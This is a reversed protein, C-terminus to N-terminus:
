SRQGAASGAVAPVHSHTFKDHSRDTNPESPEGIMWYRTMKAIMKEAQGRDHEHDPAERSAAAREGPAAAPRTLRAEADDVHVLQIAGTLQDQQPPVIHLM